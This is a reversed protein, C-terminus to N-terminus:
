SAKYTVASSSELTISYTEEEAYNGTREYNTIQFNGSLKNGNGFCLEFPSIKGIFAYNRVLEESRSSTFIGSGSITISNVSGGDLLERWNGSDKNTADIPRNNLSFSTTRMGGVTEYINDQNLIKLLVLSGLQASM